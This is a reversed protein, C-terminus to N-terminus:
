LVQRGKGVETERSIGRVKDRRLGIDLVQLVVHGVKVEFAVDLASRTNLSDAAARALRTMDDLDFLRVAATELPFAVGNSNAATEIAPRDDRVELPEVPNGNHKVRRLEFCPFLEATVGIDHYEASPLRAHINSVECHSRWGLRHGDAMTITEEAGWLYAGHM